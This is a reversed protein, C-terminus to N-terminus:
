LIIRRIIAGGIGLRAVDGLLHSPMVFSTRSLYVATRQWMLKPSALIRAMHHPGPGLDRELMMGTLGQCKRAGRRLRHLTTPPAGEVETFRPWEARPGSRVVLM